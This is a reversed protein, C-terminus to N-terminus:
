AFFAYKFYPALIPQVVPPQRSRIPIGIYFKPPYLIM